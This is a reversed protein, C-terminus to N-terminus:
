AFSMGAGKLKTEYKLQLDILRERLETSDLEEDMLAMLHKRLQDGDASQRRFRNSSALSVEM